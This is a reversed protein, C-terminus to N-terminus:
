QKVTIFSKLCIYMHQIYTIKILYHVINYVYIIYTHTHIHMVKNLKTSSM